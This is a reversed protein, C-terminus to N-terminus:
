EIIQHTLAPQTFEYSKNKWRIINVGAYDAPHGQDEIKLNKRQLEKNNNNINSGELSVFISDDVYM